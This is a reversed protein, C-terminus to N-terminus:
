RPSLSLSCTRLVCASTKTQVDVVFTKRMEVKAKDHLVQGDDAMSENYIENEHQFKLLKFKENKNKNAYVKESESDNKNKNNNSCLLM